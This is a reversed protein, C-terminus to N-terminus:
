PGKGPLGAQWQKKLPDYVFLRQRNRPEHCVIRPKAKALKSGALEAYMRAQPLTYAVAGLCQKGRRRYEVLMVRGGAGGFVGRAQGATFPATEGQGTESLIVLLPSCGATAAGLSQYESAHTAPLLEVLPRAQRTHLLWHQRGAKAVVWLDGPGRAWVREPMLAQGAHRPLGVESWPGDARRRWLKQVGAKTREVTWLEPGAQLSLAVLHGKMPPKELHARSGDFRVLYPAKPHNVDPGSWGAVYAENPSLAAFAAVGFLDGDIDPLTEIVGDVAGAPWYGIVGGRGGSTCPLGQVVLEGTAFGRLRKGILHCAGSADTFRPVASTSGDPVALLESRSGDTTEFLVLSSGTAWGTSGTAYRELKKQEAWRDGAWRYLYSSGGVPQRANLALWTDNPWRGTLTAIEGRGLADFPKEMGAARDGVSTVRDGVIEVLTPGDSILFTRGEIPVFRSPGPLSAVVHFTPPASTAGTSTGAPSAVGASPEGGPTTAAASAPMAPDAPAASASAPEAVREPPPAQGACGLLLCLAWGAAVGGARRNMAEDQGM